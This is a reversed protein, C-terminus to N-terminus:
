TLKYCYYYWNDKILMEKGTAADDYEEISGNNKVFM